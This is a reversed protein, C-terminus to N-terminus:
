RSELRPSNAPRWLFNTGPDVWLRVVAFGDPTPVARTSTNADPAVLTEPGLPEPQAPAPSSALVLIFVGLCSPGLFKM